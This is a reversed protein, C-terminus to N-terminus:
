GARRRMPFAIVDGGDRPRRPAPDPACLLRGGSLSAIKHSHMLSAMDPATMLIAIGDQLALTKLLEAVREREEIHLAITPDDALLLRPRRVLAHAIGVLTREGDSLEGWRQELCGEVGVRELARATLRMAERASHERMLTLAIRRGVRLGSRPWSRHVWGVNERRHAALQSDSRCSIDAGDFEVEGADPAILGAAIELLTTKGAGRKGWVGLVEGAELDLSVDRLVQVRRPGRDYSKAVGRMRLLPRAQVGGSAEAASAPRNRKRPM